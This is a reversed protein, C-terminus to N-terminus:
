YPGIQQYVSESIGPIEDPLLGQVNRVVVYIIALAIAYFVATSLTETITAPINLNVGQFLQPFILAIDLILAQSTNFRIYRSINTNRVVLIYLALFVGFALFPIGRYISYLPILPPLLLQGVIPVKTFVFRGFTLSDMLPILYPLTSLVRDSIPTSSPGGRRMQMKLVHSRRSHPRAPGQYLGHRVRVAAPCFTTRSLASPASPIFATVRFM